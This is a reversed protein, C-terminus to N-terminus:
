ERANELELLVLTKRMKLVMAFAIVTWFVAGISDSRTNEKVNISLRHSPYPEGPLEVISIRSGATHRRYVEESVPIEYGTLLDGNPLEWEGCCRAKVILRYETWEEFEGGGDGTRVWGGNKQSLKYATAVQQETSEGVWGLARAGDV